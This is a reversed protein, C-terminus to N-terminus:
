VKLRTKSQLKCKGRVKFLSPTFNSIVFNVDQIIHAISVFGVEPIADDFNYQSPLFTSSTIANRFLPPQTNGGHAVM